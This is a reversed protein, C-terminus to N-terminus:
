SHDALSLSPAAAFFVSKYNTCYTQLDPYSQNM